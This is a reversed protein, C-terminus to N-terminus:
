LIESFFMRFAVCLRSNKATETEESELIVKSVHIDLLALVTLRQVWGVILFTSMFSICM